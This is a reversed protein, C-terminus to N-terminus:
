KWESRPQALGDGEVIDGDISVSMEDCRSQRSCNRLKRDLQVAGWRKSLRRPGKLALSVVPRRTVDDWVDRELCCMIYECCEAM